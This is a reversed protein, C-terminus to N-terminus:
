STAWAKGVDAYPICGKYDGPVPDYELFETAGAESTCFGLVTLEKVKRFFHDQDANNGFAAQDYKELLAMQQEEDLDVFDDGHAAQADANVQKLKERFATAEETKYYGSLMSDIFRPVGADVAGPTDTRPIIRDVMTEILSAENLEFFEPTWTLTPEAKCGSMVGLIASASLTSGLLISTRKIADRRNM